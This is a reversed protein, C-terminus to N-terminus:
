NTLKKGRTRRGGRRPGRAWSKNPHPGNESSRRSSGSALSTPSAKTEFYDSARRTRRQPRSYSGGSTRKDPIHSDAPHISSAADQESLSIDGKLHSKGTDGTTAFHQSRGYTRQNLRAATRENTFGEHVSKQGNGRLSQSSENQKKDPPVEGEFTVAKRKTGHNNGEAIHTRQGTLSGSPSQDACAPSEVIGGQSALNPQSSESLDCFSSVAKKEPTSMFMSALETPDENQAFSQAPSLDNQISSFPVISAMPQLNPISNVTGPGRGDMQSRHAPSSFTSQTSETRYIFETKQFCGGSPGGHNRRPTSAMAITAPPKLESPAVGSAPSSGLNRKFTKAKLLTDLRNWTESFCEDSTNIGLGELTEKILKMWRESDQLRRLLSHIEAKAKTKASELSLMVSNATSLEDRVSSCEDEKLQFSKQLSELRTQSAELSEGYNEKSSIERGLNIIESSAEELRKELSKQLDM